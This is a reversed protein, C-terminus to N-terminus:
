NANFFEEDVHSTRPNLVASGSTRKVIRKVASINSQIASDHSNMRSLYFHSNIYSINHLPSVYKLM